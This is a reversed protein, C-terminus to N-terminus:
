KYARYLQASLKAQREAELRAFYDRLAELEAQTYGSRSALEKMEAGSIDELGGGAELYARLREVAEERESQERSLEDQERRYATEDAYRRDSVADRDARYARDLADQYVGYQFRRDESERDAAGRYASQLLNWQKLQRNAEDQEMQWALRYLEPIKDTMKANYYDRAQSAATVAATSPMGGTLAAYQGLVDESSRRGERTYQKKYSQWAPDTQYNYAFKERGLISSELADLRQRYSEVLGSAAGGSYRFPEMRSEATGLPIYKDGNTDGSYRYGERISEARAHAAEMGAQNGAEYARQWDQKAKLTAAYDADNMWAADAGVSYDRKRVREVLEPDYDKEWRKTAM